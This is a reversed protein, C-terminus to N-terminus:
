TYNLRGLVAGASGHQHSANTTRIVGHVGLETSGNLVLAIASTKLRMLTRTCTGITRLHFFRKTHKILLTDVVM